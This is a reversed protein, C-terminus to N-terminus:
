VDKKRTLKRIIQNRSNAVEKELDVSAPVYFYNDINIGKEDKKLEDAYRFLFGDPNDYLLELITNNTSYYDRFVYSEIDLNYLISLICVFLKNIDSTVSDAIVVSYQDHIRTKCRIITQDVKKDAFDLDILYADTKNLIINGLHIDGVILYDHLEKLSETLDQVYKLRMEFDQLSNKKCAKIAAVSKIYRMVYGDIIGNSDYNLSLPLVVNSQCYNTLSHNYEVQQRLSLNIDYYSFLKLLINDKKYITARTGEFFPKFSKDLEM